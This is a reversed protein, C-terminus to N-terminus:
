WLLLVGIKKGQPSDTFSFCQQGVLRRNAERWTSGHQGKKTSKGKLLQELYSYVLATFMYRHYVMVYIYIYYIMKVPIKIYVDM